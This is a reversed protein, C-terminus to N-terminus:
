LVIQGGDNAKLRNWRTALCNQQGYSARLALKWYGGESLAEYLGEIM